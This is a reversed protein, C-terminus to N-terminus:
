CGPLTITEIPLVMGDRDTGFRVTHRTQRPRLIGCRWWGGNGREAQGARRPAAAGAQIAEVQAQAGPQSTDVWDDSVLQGDIWMRFRLGPDAM